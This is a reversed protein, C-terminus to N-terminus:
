VLYLKTLTVKGGMKKIFANDVATGKELANNTKNVTGGIIDTSKHPPVNPM